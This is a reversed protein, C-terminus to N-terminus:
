SHVLCNFITAWSGADSSRFSGIHRVEYIVFNGEFTSKYKVQSPMAAASTTVFGPANQLGQPMRVISGITIDSRLVTKVQIKKVDIWTPQGILDTFDLQVTNPTYTTDSVTIMGQQAAMTVPNKFKGTTFQNIFEGLQDLTACYHQIDHSNVLDSSVNISLPTNPYATALTQKLSDGLTAGAKWNVVMNGPNQITYLAPFVVLNLTMDTGVWTGYSQFIQGQVLLGAQAPNELPLGGKMGGKITLTKGTFQTAENLDQLAIGYITITVATSQNAPMIPMDFEIDLAQPDYQGNPYSTWQRYPTTSTTDTITLDYYRM